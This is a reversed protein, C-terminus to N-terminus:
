EPSLDCLNSDGLAGPARSQLNKKVTLTGGIVSSNNISGILGRNIGMSASVGSSAGVNALAGSNLAMEAVVSTAATILSSLGFVRLLTGTISSAASLTAEVPRNLGLAGTIGADNSIDAEISYDRTMTGVISSAGSLSGMLPLSLALGGTIATTASLSAMLAIIREVSLTGTLDSAALIDAILAYNRTITASITSTNTITGSIAFGRTITASVVSSATLSASLAHNTSGLSPLLAFSISVFRESYARSPAAQTGATARVISDTAIASNAGVTQEDNETWGASPSGTTDDDCFFNCVVLRDAGTTTVTSGVLPAADGTNFDPDEYPNGSTVCGSYACIKAAFPNSALNPHQVSPMTPLSGSVRYWWARGHMATGGIDTYATIIENWGTGDAAINIVDTDIDDGRAGAFLILIDNDQTGAPAGPTIPTNNATTRVMTGASRFAPPAM